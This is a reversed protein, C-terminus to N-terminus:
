QLVYSIDKYTGQYFTIKDTPDQDNQLEVSFDGLILKEDLNQKQVRFFDANYTASNLNYSKYSNLSDEVIYNFSSIGGLGSVYVPYLTCIFSGTNNLDFEINITYKKGSLNTGKVQMLYRTFLETGKSTKYLVTKGQFFKTETAFQKNMNDTSYSFVPLRVIQYVEIKDRCSSLTVALLLTILLTTNVRILNFPYPFKGKGIRSGKSNAFYSLM